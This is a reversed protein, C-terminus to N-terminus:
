KHYLFPEVASSIPTIFKLHKVSLASKENNAVFKTDKDRM